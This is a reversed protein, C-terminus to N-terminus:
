VLNLGLRGTQRTLDNISTVATQAFTKGDVQLIIPTSGSGIRSSLMDALKELWGLNNELPVVAEAGDEGIGQLSGGYNFITPKDFVGGLANWNVKFSPIGQLGLFEAAEAMWKPSDKWVVSISPMKLKPLEWKFNLADQLKKVLNDKVTKILTAFSKLLEPIILPIASVIALFAKFAGQLLIPAADILAGTVSDTIQPIAEILPPIIQPVATVIALFLTIAGDILLPLAELLCDLISNIIQPIAAILPPIVEPIANVIAMLLEIAADLLLPIADLLADIIEPLITVIQALIQPLLVSIASVISTVIETIARILQPIANLLAQTLQPLGAVIGEVLALVITTAVELVKPLMETIMGVLSEIAGVIGEKLKEAGGDAGSLIDQLGEAVLQLSPVLTNLADALGAKFITVIPEVAEGLAALADTMAAAAANADLLSAANEEYKAAADSYLGNLTDRILAEREAETNCADLKSQFEEENVGAWNLADALAGTLTGVKATENVAETLSEIPLSDGFTGYVGKCINTWESLAQQETTLKALHSAAETAQGSDGLVRYLDNYTEKAQEASSGAAEFASNLKAQEARYERTSEALAVMAAAGAAMATGVAKMATGVAKGAAKAADAFKKFNSEGKKSLDKVEDQAQQLNKKLDAIEASIIVRLEENM